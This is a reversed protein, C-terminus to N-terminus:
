LKGSQPVDSYHLHLVEAFVRSEGCRNFQASIMKKVMSMYVPADFLHGCMNNSVSRLSAIVERNAAKLSGEMVITGNRISRSQKAEPRAQTRVQFSYKGHRRM